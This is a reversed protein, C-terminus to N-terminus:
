PACAPRYPEGPAYREWDQISLPPAADGRGM